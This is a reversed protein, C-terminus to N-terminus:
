NMRRRTVVIAGHVHGTGFRQTAAVGNLYELMDVDDSQLSRLSEHTGFRANDVYVVIEPEATATVASGDLGTGSVTAMTARGRTNLWHPRKSRILQYLNTSPSARLEDVEIKDRNRSKKRTDQAEATAQMAVLAVLVALTTRAFTKM